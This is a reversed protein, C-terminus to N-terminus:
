QLHEQNTLMAAAEREIVVCFEVHATDKDPTVIRLHVLKKM